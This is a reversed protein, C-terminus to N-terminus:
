ATRDSRHCASNRKLDKIEIQRKAAPMCFQGAPLAGTRATEAAASGAGAVDRPATRGDEGGACVAALKLNATTAAADASAQKM